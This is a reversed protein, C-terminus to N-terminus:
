APFIHSTACLTSKSPDRSYSVPPDVIAVMGLVTLNRGSELIEESYSSMEPTAKIHSRQLQKQAILLVRKGEIAWNLQIQELVQRHQDTLATTTADARQIFGCRALLIDPAGKM